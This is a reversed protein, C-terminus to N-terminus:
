NAPRMKKVEADSPLADKGDVFLVGQNTTDLPQWQTPAKCQSVPTRALGGQANASVAQCIASWPSPRILKPADVTVSM